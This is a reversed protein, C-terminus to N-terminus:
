EEYVFVIEGEEISKPEVTSYTIKTLGDGGIKPQAYEEFEKGTVYDSLDNSKGPSYALYRVEYRMNTKNWTEGDLGSYLTFTHTGLFKGNVYTLYIIENIDNSKNWTIGDESYYVNKFGSIVFRGNGYTIDNLAINQFESELINWTEGDTSYACSYDTSCNSVCVFKGNGYAIDNYLLKQNLGTMENWTIGDLSHYSIGYFGIVAFRGDGYTIAQYSVSIDSNHGNAKHWTIADESYLINGCNGVCVFVGNGYAIDNLTGDEALSSLNVSTWSTGDSSYAVGPTNKVAVFKNQEEVYIIANIREGKCDESRIFTSLNDDSYYLGDNGVGVYRSQASNMVNGGLAIKNDVEEPTYPTYGLANTVNEKTIESRITESSKNDVNSLGVQSKTVAHPNETNSTHADLAEKTALLNDQEENKTDIRSLASDILDMNTNTVSIDYKETSLPKALSVHETYEAM